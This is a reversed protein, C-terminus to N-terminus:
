LDDGWEIVLNASCFFHLCFAFKSTKAIKKCEAPSKM